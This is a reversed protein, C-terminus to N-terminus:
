IYARFYLNVNAPAPGAPAIAKAPANVRFVDRSTTLHTLPRLSAVCITDWLDGTKGIVLKAFAPSYRYCFSESLVGCYVRDLLHDPSYRSSRGTSQLMAPFSTPSAPAIAKALAIIQLELSRVTSHSECIRVGVWFHMHAYTCVRVYFHMEHIETCGTTYCFRRLLIRPAQQLAWAFYTAESVVTSKSM